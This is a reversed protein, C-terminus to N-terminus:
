GLEPAAEQVRGLASRSGDQSNRPLFRQLHRLPGQLSGLVGHNDINDLSSSFRFTLCVSFNLSLGLIAANAWVNFWLKDTSTTVGKREYHLHTGSISACCITTILCRIGLRWWQRSIPRAPTVPSDSAMM